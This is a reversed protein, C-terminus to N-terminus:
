AFLANREKRSMAKRPPEGAPKKRTRATKAQEANRERIEQVRRDKEAQQAQEAQENAALRKKMEVALDLTKTADGICRWITWRSVGLMDALENRPLTEPDFGEGQMYYLHVIAATIESKRYRDDEEAPAVPAIERVPEVEAIKGQM